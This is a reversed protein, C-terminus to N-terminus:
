VRSNLPLYTVLVHMGMNKNVEKSIQLDTGRGSLNTSIIVKGISTFQQLSKLENANESDLYLHL